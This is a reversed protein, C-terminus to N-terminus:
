KINFYKDLYNIRLDTYKLIISLEEKYSNDDYYWKEDVPWREFNAKIESQIKLNNKVIHSNINYMSIIGKDRLEHWREQLETNYDLLKNKTLREWLISRNCDVVHKMMNLENDGDRGFSHDYDWIAIKFPTKSDKKYLYFNKLVGDGNNSFLLLIHWDIVNEIDIWHKINDAFDQESSEFLFTKFKNLYGNHNRFELDPFKQHYFNSTDNFPITNDKVFVSPGKFIMSRKDYRDIGLFRANIKETILYLGEYKQNLSLNIYSSKAAKNNPNMQRFLDYSIKHRMFTKDIYNANLIWDDDSPLNAMKYKEDLELAFSHKFYKSSFGGRYKIFAKISDSKIGNSYVVSCAVKENWAIKEKEIIQLTPFQEEKCSNLFLASLIIYISFLFAKNKM